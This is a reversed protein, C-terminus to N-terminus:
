RSQINGDADFFTDPSSTTDKKFDSPAQKQISNTDFSETKGKKLVNNLGPDIKPTLIVAPEQLEPPAPQDLNNGPRDLDLIEDDEFIDTEYAALQESVTPPKKVREAPSPKKDALAPQRPLRVLTLVQTFQGDSFDSKVMLVRYLGSFVSSSRKSNGDDGYYKMLGTEEDIDTKSEMNVRVYIEGNDTIISGNATLSANIGSDEEDGTDVTASVYTGPPYFVDDQKIFVPDGYIKLDLTLMDAGANTYLSNQTDKVAVGVEDTEYGQKAGADSSRPQVGPIIVDDDKSAIAEQAAVSNEKSEHDSTSRQTTNVRDGYATIATYYLANFQIDFNLIDVNKGTYLYNYEKSIKKDPVPARPAQPAKADHVLFPLVHYTITRAFDKRKSDYGTLEVTPVIKFWKLPVDERKWKSSDSGKDVPSEIQGQIYVSNRVVYNIMSDVSTGAGVTFIRATTDDGISTSTVGQKIAKSIQPKDDAHPMVRAQNIIQKKAIERFKSTEIKDYFKFLYTDAAGIMGNQKLELQWANWAGAYSRAGYRVKISGNGASGRQGLLSVAPGSNFTSKTVGGEPDDETGFFEGVTGAQIEFNAPTSCTSVDYASHNFPIAEFEYESGQGTAKIDM